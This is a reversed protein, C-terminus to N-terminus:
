LSQCKNKALQQEAEINLGQLFEKPFGHLQLRETVNLIGVGYPIIELEDLMQIISKGDALGQLFKIWWQPPNLSRTECEELYEKFRKDCEHNADRHERAAVIAEVLGKPMLLLEEAM